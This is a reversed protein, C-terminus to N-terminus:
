GLDESSDWPRLMREVLVVAGGVAKAILGPMARDTLYGTYGDASLEGPTMLIVPSGPGKWYTANYWYRMPFTGLSPDSHDIPQMFNFPAAAEATHIDDDVPPVSPITPKFPLTAEVGRLALLSAASFLAVTKMKWRRHFM